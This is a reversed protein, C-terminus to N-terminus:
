VFGYEGYGPSYLEGKDSMKKLLEEVKSAPINRRACEELIVRKETMNSHPDMKERVISYITASIDRTKTSTGSYISTIDEDGLLKDRWHRMIMVALEADWALVTERLNMRASAEALRIAGESGRPTIAIKDIGSESRERDKPIRTDIYFEELIKQAEESLVPFCARRAYAVYKRVFNPSLIEQGGEDRILPSEHKPIEVTQGRKASGLMEPEGQARNKLIRQVIDRDHDENPEDVMPWIVDFRSILSAPLDIQNTYIDNIDFKSRRPNAAALVPCRCFLTANIGAKNVHIRQQELGSHMASRDEANMKDLEDIAALGLDALVLAGAELTWRGGSAEDRVATATLGAKSTSQGSAIMGRPSLTAMYELIQSKGTGPDGMLLVHIDGRQRRGDKTRRAVGGFLQLSLSRKVELWGEISPAISRSVLDLLDDRAVISRIEEEDEVTISVEEYAHNQREISQLDLLIDLVPSARTSTGQQRTVLFGNAIIRDGPHLIGALDGSVLTSVREPQGGSEVTEPLDQIEIFQSDILKDKRWEFIWDTQGRRKGCGGSGETGTCEVPQRLIREDPQEIPTETGCGRCKFLGLLARPRVASIRSVVAEVAILRGVDETRLASVGRRHDPPLKTIQLSLKVNPAGLEFCLNRLADVGPQIMVSPSELIQLAFEAHFTHIVNWSVKLHKNKPWQHILAKIIDHQTEELFTRWRAGADTVAFVLIVTM